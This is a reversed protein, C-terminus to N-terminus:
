SASIRTATVQTYGSTPTALLVTNKAAANPAASGGTGATTDAGWYLAAYLVNAGSPLSLQANSSTFTTPDNDIDVRVMKFNNDNLTNGVGNLANACNPDSPPCTMLTNGTLGIAGATNVSFRKAFPTIVAAHASPAPVVVAVTAFALVVVALRASWGIRRTGWQAPV